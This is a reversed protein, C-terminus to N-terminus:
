YRGHLYPIGNDELFRPDPFWAGESALVDFGKLRYLAQRVADEHAGDV